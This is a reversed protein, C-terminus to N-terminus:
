AEVPAPARTVPVEIVFRTGSPPNDEVRISGGHESVIESV